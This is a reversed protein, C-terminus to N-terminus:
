AFPWGQVSYAEYGPVPVALQDWLHAQLYGAYWLAWEPDAGDSEQYARHHRQGTEILLATLEEDTV